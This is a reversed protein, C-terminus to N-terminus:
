GKLIIKLRKTVNNYLINDLFLQENRIKIFINFLDTKLKLYDLYIIEDKFLVDMLRSVNEYDFEPIYIGM